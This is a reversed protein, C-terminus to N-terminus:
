EDRSEEPDNTFGEAVPFSYACDPDDCWIRGNYEGATCGCQPCSAM